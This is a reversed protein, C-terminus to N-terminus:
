PGRFIRWSVHDEVLVFGRALLAEQARKTTRWHTDDAVWYGGGALKPAWLEVERTSVEESHNSDQHLVAVSSDAFVKVAVDSRERMVWCQQSLGHREAAALFGRYIAEYDLTRWWAENPPDNDGELSASATWPDIGVVHGHGLHAHGIAM